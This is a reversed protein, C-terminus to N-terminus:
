RTAAELLVVFLNHLFHMLMCPYLSGSRIRVYGLLLGMLVLYPFNLIGLHLIAFMLASVIVADRTRLVRRLSGLIVGRFALEEIIAPQVCITLIVGAWGYGARLFPRSYTGHRIGLLSTLLEAVLVALGFTLCAMGAALAHWKPKPMTVLAPFVDRHTGILWLLVVVTM